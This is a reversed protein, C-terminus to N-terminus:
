PNTIQRPLGGGTRTTWRNAVRREIKRWLPRTVWDRSACLTLLWGISWVKVFTDSPYALGTARVLLPAVVFATLIGTLTLHLAMLITKERYARAAEEPSQDLVRGRGVSDIRGGAIMLPAGIV